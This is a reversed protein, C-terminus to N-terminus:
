QKLLTGPAYEYHQMKSNPVVFKVISHEPELQQIARWQLDQDFDKDFYGFADFQVGRIDSIFLLRKTGVWKKIMPVDKDEYCRVELIFNTGDENWKNANHVADERDCRFDDYPDFGM